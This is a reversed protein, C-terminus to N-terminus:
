SALYLDIMLQLPDESFLFSAGLDQDLVISRAGPFEKCFKELGSSIKIRGGSKVEIALLCDEYAWVMDVEERGSRWYYLEGPLTVAKSIIAAELVRGRWESEREIRSPPVFSHILAPALPILKPSSSKIKIKKSSYKELIRLVFAQELISLYSKITAANGRDQLQGLLKQYSLEQAPYSMALEFSQRFLATNSIQKLSLIDKSIIPEVVSDQMFDRWRQQDDVLEAAAPYGGFKLYSELDWGFAKRCEFPDWHHVRVLEYRGLLSENLGAQLSLSASGLLVVKLTRQARDEDFLAKVVESWRDVKQVEDIVLLTGAGLLRAKKWNEIIWQNDPPAPLDASCYHWEGEWNELIMKLGTTKGVQRPGLVVQIFGLEERLRGELIPVFDRIFMEKNGLTPVGM